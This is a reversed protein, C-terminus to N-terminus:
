ALMTTDSTAKRGDTSLRVLRSRPEAIRCALHKLRAWGSNRAILMEAAPVRDCAHRLLGSCRGVFALNRIGEDSLHEIIFSRMMLSPNLSRYASHNYQYLLLALNGEMFGGGASILKGRASRLYAHFPRAQGAILRHVSAIRRGSSATPMNYRCLRKLERMDAAPGGTSWKFGIGLEAALNRCNRVNRRTSRGLKQLFEAYSSGLALVEQVDRAVTVSTMCRGHVIRRTSSLDIPAPGAVRFTALDAAAAGGIQDALSTASLSDPAADLLVVGDRIGVGMGFIRREYSYVTGAKRGALELPAVDIRSGNWFAQTEVEALLSTQSVSHRAAAENSILLPVDGPSRRFSLKRHIRTLGCAATHGHECYCRQM